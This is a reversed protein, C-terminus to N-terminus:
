EVQYPSNPDKEHRIEDVPDQKLWGAYLRNAGNFVWGDQDGVNKYAHVVGAPVILAYPSSEGVDRVEKKGFTPSDKRADWLYVRFTSPGTFCFYDAQDVHEHPGRQVGPKTFSIYSMAPYFEEALEDHRFLEALWGRDDHFKKLSYVVIDQIESEAFQREPRDLRDPREPGTTM